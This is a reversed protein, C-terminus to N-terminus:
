QRRLARWAAGFDLRGTLTGHLVWAIGAGLLGCLLVFLGELLLGLLVLVGFVLGTVLGILLHLRPLGRGAEPVPREDADLDPRTATFPDGPGM